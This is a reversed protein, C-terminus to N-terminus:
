HYQTRRRPKIRPSSARYRPMKSHLSVFDGIEELRAPSPALCVELEQPDRRHTTAQVFEGPAAFVLLRDMGLVLDVVDNAAACSDSHPSLIALDPGPADHEDRGAGLVPEVIDQLIQRGKHEERRRLTGVRPSSDLLGRRARPNVSDKAPPCGSSCLM